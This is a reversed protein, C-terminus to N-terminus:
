RLIAQMPCDRIAQEIREINGDDQAGEKIVESKNRENLRFVNPCLTQCTSCGICLDEDVQLPM